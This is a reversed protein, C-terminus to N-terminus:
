TVVDLERILGGANVYEEIDDETAHIICVDRNTFSYLEKTKRPKRRCRVVAFTEDPAFLCWHYRASM